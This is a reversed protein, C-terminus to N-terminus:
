IIMKYYEITKFIGKRLKIIPKWNIEKKIARIDPFTTIAEEVRMKIKGFHPKGGKVIKQIFIIIKKIEKPKGFGVNLINKNIKKQTILKFICKVFDDIFLFDRKQNGKSCPFSKNELCNKIVFPIFRNTEQQPGYIQYPRVIIVPFKFKKNLNILYNTASLKAKAYHSIPNEKLSEKQPSIKKGYELSSGIQLFKSLDKKIFYNALNKVGNFHSSFVKNKIKHNVEGGANIVYKLNKIKKLKKILIKKKGIDCYIYKVKKLLRIRNPKKRSISIIQWKKKSFFKAIHFGIFGTGGIILIKKKKM